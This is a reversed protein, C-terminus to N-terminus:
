TGLYKLVALVRRHDTATPPLDPNGAEEGALSVGREVVHVEVRLRGEGGKLLVKLEGGEARRV